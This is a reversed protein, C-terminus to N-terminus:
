EAVIEDPSIALEGFVRFDATNFTLLRDVQHTNRMAVLKSDHVQKGIVRHKKVLRLWEDFVAPTEPLLPFQDTTSIRAGYRNM